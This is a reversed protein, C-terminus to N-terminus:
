KPTETQPKAPEPKKEKKKFMWKFVPAIVTVMTRLILFTFGLAKPLKIGSEYLYDAWDEGLQVIESKQGEPEPERIGKKVTLTHLWKSISGIDRHYRQKYIEPLPVIPKEIPESKAFTESTTAQSTAPSTSATEQGQPPAEGTPKPESVEDKKFAFESSTSKAFGMTSTDIKRADLVEKLIEKTKTRNGSKLGLTSMAEKVFIGATAKDTPIPYGADLKTKFFDRTKDAITQEDTM